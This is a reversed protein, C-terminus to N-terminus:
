WFHVFGMLGFQIAAGTGNAAAGWKPAAGPSWPKRFFESWARADSTKTLSRAGPGPKMYGIVRALITNPPWRACKKKRNKKRALGPKPERSPAWLKDSGLKASAGSLFFFTPSMWLQTRPPWLTPIEWHLKKSTKKKRNKLNERKIRRNTCKLSQM